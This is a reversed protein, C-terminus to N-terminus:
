DIHQSLNNKKIFSIYQQGRGFWPDFLPLELPFPKGKSYDNVAQTFQLVSETTEKSFVSTLTSLDELLNKLELTLEKQIKGNQMTISIDFIAKCIRELEIADKSSLPDFTYRYDLFNHLNKQYDKIMLQNHNKELGHIDKYWRWDIHFSPSTSYAEFDNELSNIADEISFLKGVIPQLINDYLWDDIPRSMGKLSKLSNSFFPRLIDLKESEALNQEGLILKAAIKRLTESLVSVHDVCTILLIGSPKVFKSLKKLFEHPNNQGPITGQCIVIDFLIDSKFDDFNCKIIECNNTDEFYTSLLNNTEDISKQNGDILVYKAPKMSNTFLANHGTGPGIELVSNGKILLSPIGCQRYLANRREFHKELNSIDQSVPSINHKEYYDLFQNKYQSQM